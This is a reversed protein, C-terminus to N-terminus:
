HGLLKIGIVLAVFVAQAAISILAARHSGHATKASRLVTIIMATLGAGIAAILATDLEIVEIIALCILLVSPVMALLIGYHYVLNQRAERWPMAKDHVIRYSLMEAIVSALWLGWGTSLVVTMVHQPTTHHLEIFQAVNVALITLTGYIRESLFRVHDERSRLSKKVHAPKLRNVVMHQYYLMGKVDVGTM